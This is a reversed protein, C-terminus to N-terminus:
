VSAHVRRQVGICTLVTKGWSNNGQGSMRNAYYVSGRSPQFQTCVSSEGTLAPTRWPLGPAVASRGLEVSDVIAVNASPVATSAV